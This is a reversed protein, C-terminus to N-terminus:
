LQGNIFSLVSSPVVPDREFKSVKSLVSEAVIDDPGNAQLFAVSKKSVIPNKLFESPATMVSMKLRCTERPSKRHLTDPSWAIWVLKDRKGGEAVNFRFNLVAWRIDNNDFCRTFESYPTTRKFTHEIELTKEDESVKLIMGMLEGSRVKMFGEFVNEGVQLPDM